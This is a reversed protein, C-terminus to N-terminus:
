REPRSLDWLLGHEEGAIFVRVIIETAQPPLGSMTVGTSLSAGPLITQERLM